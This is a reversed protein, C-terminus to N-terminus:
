ARRFFGPRAPDAALGTTNAPLSEHKGIVLPGIAGFDSRNSFVGNEAINQTMWKFFLRSTTFSDGAPVAVMFSWFCRERFRM